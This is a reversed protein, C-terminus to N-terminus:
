PKRVTLTGRFVDSKEGERAAEDVLGTQKTKGLDLSSDALTMWQAQSEGRAARALEAEDPVHDPPWPTAYHTGTSRSGPLPKRPPVAQLSPAKRGTDLALSTRQSPGAIPSQSLQTEAVTTPPLTIPLPPNADGEDAPLPGLEVAPTAAAKRPQQHSPGPPYPRALVVVPEGTDPLYMIQPTPVHRKSRFQRSCLLFFFFVAHILLLIVLFVFVVLYRVIQEYNADWWGNPVYWYGQNFLGIWFGAISAAIVLCILGDAALHVHRPMGKRSRRACVVVFEITDWVSVLIGPVIMPTLRYQDDYYFVDLMNLGMVAIVFASLLSLVRLVISSIFWGKGSRGDNDQKWQRLEEPTLKAATSPVQALWSEIAPNFRSPALPQRRLTSKKLTRRPQEAM